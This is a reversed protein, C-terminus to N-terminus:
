IYEMPEFYTPIFEVNEQTVGDDFIGQVHPQSLAVAMPAESEDVTEEKRLASSSSTASGAKSKGKKGSAWPQKLCLKILANINRQGPSLSHEQGLVTKRYLILLVREFEVRLTVDLRKHGLRYLQFAERFLEDSASSSAHVSASVSAPPPVSENSSSVQLTSNVAEGGADDNGNDNGISESQMTSQLPVTAVEALDEVTRILLVLYGRFSYQLLFNVTGHDWKGLATWTAIQLAAERDGNMEILDM